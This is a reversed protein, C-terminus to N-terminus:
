DVSADRLLRELRDSVDRRFRDIYGTVYDVISLKPERILPTLDMAYVVASSADPAHPNHYTAHARRRGITALDYRKGGLIQSDYIGLLAQSLNEHASVDLVVKDEDLMWDLDRWVECGYIRRPHFGEPLMRLAEIVRLAVAVHTDHKDAPNHTYITSPRALSILDRLDMVVDRSESGRLASSPYDLFVVGSYGGVVAAKRQEEMRVRRIEEDSYPAYPGGMPSGRGDTVTVGLFGRGGVMFCELIGHIAMIELDDQHACIGMHTTRRLAEEFPRGDPVYFESTDRRFKM